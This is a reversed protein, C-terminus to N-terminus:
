YHVIPWILAFSCTIQKGALFDIKCIKIFLEKFRSGFIRIQSILISKFFLNYYTILLYCTTSGFLFYSKIRSLKADWYNLWIKQIRVDETLYLENLRHSAQRDYEMLIAPNRAITIIHLYLINKKIVIIPAICLVFYTYRCIALYTNYYLM